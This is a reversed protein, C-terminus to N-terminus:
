LILPAVLRCSQINCISSAYCYMLFFVCDTTLMCLNACELDSHVTISRLVTGNNLIRQGDDEEVHFQAAQYDAERLALRLAPPASANLPAWASGM